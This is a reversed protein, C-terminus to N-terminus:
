VDLHQHTDGFRTLIIAYGPSPTVVAAISIKESGAVPSAIM